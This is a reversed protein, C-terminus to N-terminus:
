KCFFHLGHAEKYLLHDNECYWESTWCTWVGMQHNSLKRMDIHEVVKQCDPCIIETIGLNVFNLAYPVLVKYFYHPVDCPIIDDSMTGRLWLPLAIRASQVEKDASWVAKSHNEAWQLLGSAEAIMECRYHKDGYKPSIVLVKSTCRPLEMLYKGVTKEFDFEPMEWQIHLKGFSWRM